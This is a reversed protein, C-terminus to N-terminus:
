RRGHWALRWLLRAVRRHGGRHEEIEADALVDGITDNIEAYCRAASAIAHQRRSTPSKALIAFEATAAERDVKGISSDVTVVAVIDTVRSFGAVDHLRERLLWRNRGLKTFSWTIRRRDDSM